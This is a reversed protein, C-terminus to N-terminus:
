ELLHSELVMEMGALENKRWSIGGHRVAVNGTVRVICKRGIIAVVVFSCAALQKFPGVYKAPIESIEAYSM